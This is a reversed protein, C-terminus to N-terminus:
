FIIWLLLVCCSVIFFVFLLPVLFLYTKHSFLTALFSPLNIKPAQMYHVLVFYRLLSCALVYQQPKLICSLPKLPTMLKSTCVWFFAQILIKSLLAYFQTGWNVNLYMYSSFNEPVMFDMGGCCPCHQHKIGKMLRPDWCLILEEAPLLWDPPHQACHAPLSVGGCGGWKAM